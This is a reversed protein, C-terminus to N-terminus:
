VLVRLIIPISTGLTDHDEFLVLLVTIDSIAVFELPGCGCSDGVPELLSFWRAYGLIQITRRKATTAITKVARHNPIYLKSLLAMQFFLKTVLLLHVMGTPTKNKESSTPSAWFYRRAGVTIWPPAISDM